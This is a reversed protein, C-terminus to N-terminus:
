QERHFSMLPSKWKTPSRRGSVRRRGAPSRRGHLAWESSRHEGDPTMVPCTKYADVSPLGWGGGATPAVRQGTGMMELLSTRLADDMERMRQSANLLENWEKSWGSQEMLADIASAARNDDAKKRAAAARASNQLALDLAPGTQLMGFEKGVNLPKKRIDQSALHSALSDELEVPFLPASTAVHDQSRAATTPSDAGNSRDASLSGQVAAPITPFVRGVVDGFAGVKYHSVAPGERFSTRRGHGRAIKHFERTPPRELQMTSNAPAPAELSDEFGHTVTVAAVGKRVKKVTQQVREMRETNAEVSGDDLLGVFVDESRRARRRWEKLTDEDPKHTYQIPTSSM